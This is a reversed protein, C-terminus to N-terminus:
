RKGQLLVSVHPPDHSHVSRKIGRGDGPEEPKIPWDCVEPRGQKKAPPSSASKTYPKDMREVQSRESFVVQIM